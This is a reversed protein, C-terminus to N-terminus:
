GCRIEMKLDGRISCIFKMLKMSTYYIPLLKTVKEKTETKKPVYEARGPDKDVLKEGM